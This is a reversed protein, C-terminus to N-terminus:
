FTTKTVLARSAEGYFWCENLSGTDQLKQDAAAAQARLEAIASAAAAAVDCHSQERNAADKAAEKQEIERNKLYQIVLPDSVSNAATMIAWVERESATKAEAAKVAAAESNARAIEQEEATCVLLGM